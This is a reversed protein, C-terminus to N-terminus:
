LVRAVARGVQSIEAFVKGAGDVSRQVLGHAELADDTSMWPLPRSARSLMLLRSQQVGSLSDALSLVDADSVIPGEARGLLLM